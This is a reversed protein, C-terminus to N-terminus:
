EVTEPEETQATEQSEQEEAPEDEGTAVLLEQGDKALRIADETTLLDIKVIKHTAFRIAQAKNAARVMIPGADGVQVKYDAM